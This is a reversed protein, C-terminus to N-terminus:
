STSIFTTFLSFVQTVCFGSYCLLITNDISKQSFGPVIRFIIINATTIVNIVFVTAVTRKIVMVDILIYKSNIVQFLPKNFLHITYLNAM